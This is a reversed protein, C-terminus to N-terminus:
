IVFSEDDNLIVEPPCNYKNLFDKLEELINESETEILVHEGNEFLFIYYCWYRVSHTYDERGRYGREVSKGFTLKWNHSDRKDGSGKYYLTIDETDGERDYDNWDNFSCEKVDNLMDEIVDYNDEYYMKYKM